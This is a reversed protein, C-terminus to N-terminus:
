MLKTETAKTSRSNALNGALRLIGGIQADVDLIRAEFHELRATMLRSEPRAVPKRFLLARVYESLSRFHGATCRSELIEYEEDTVKFNVIRSRPARVAMQYDEVFM